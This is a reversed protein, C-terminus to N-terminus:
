QGSKRISLPLGAETESSGFLAATTTVKRPRPTGTAAAGIRVRRQLGAGARRIPEREKERIVAAHGVLQHRSLRAAGAPLQIQVRRQRGAPRIPLQHDIARQQMRLVPHFETGHGAARGPWADRIAHPHAHLLARLRM